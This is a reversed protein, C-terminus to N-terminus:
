PNHTPLILWPLSYCLKGTWCVKVTNSYRSQAPAPIHLKSTLVVVFQLQHKHPSSTNPHINGAPYPFIWSPKGAKQRCGCVHKALITQPVWLPFRLSQYLPLHISVLTVYRRIPVLHQLHTVKVPPGSTLANLLAGATCRFQHNYSWAQWENVSVM